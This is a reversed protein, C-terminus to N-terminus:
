PNITDKTVYAGTTRVELKLSGSDVRLRWTGDTDPDGLYLEQSNSSSFLSVVQTGDYYKLAKDSTNFWIRTQALQAGVPDAALNEIQARELQGFVKM